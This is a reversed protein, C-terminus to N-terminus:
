ILILILLTTLIGLVGGLIVELVSHVDSDVRSQAVILAMIYALFIILLQTSYFAIVTAISFALASHGSPMGGKLPTGKGFTVKLVLTILIVIVLILLVMHPSSNKIVNIIAETTPRVKDWFVMYGVIMANIAAILVAGASIDKAVKVLPYTYNIIADLTKEIATNIMETVIVFTIAFIVFLFEMKTIHSFLSFMLVLFGIILHIQMNRERKLSQIIGLVAYNLSEVLSKNKM